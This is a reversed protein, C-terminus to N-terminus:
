PTDFTYVGFNTTLPLPRPHRLDGLWSRGGRCTGRRGVRLHFGSLLLRRLQLLGRHLSRPLVGRIRLGREDLVEKM